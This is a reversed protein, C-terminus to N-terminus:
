KAKAYIFVLQMAAVSLKSAPKRIYYILPQVTVKGVKVGLLCIYISLTELLSILWIPAKVNFFM